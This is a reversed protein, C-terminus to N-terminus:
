GSPGVGCCLGFSGGNKCTWYPADPREAVYPMRDRMAASANSTFLDPPLMPLDIHCDASIRTYRMDGGETIPVRLRAATAEASRAWVLVTPARARPRPNSERTISRSQVKGSRFLTTYPFLTSRPPRRIM